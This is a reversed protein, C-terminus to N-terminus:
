GFREVIQTSSSEVTAASLDAGIGPVFPLPVPVQVHVTVLSGPALCTESCSISMTMSAPDLGFDNMAVAAAQRARAEGLGPSQAAVYVKAAQDAAGVVAFSGGQLQGATIVLYIVPVLLLLGLLIFELIASGAESDDTSAGANTALMGERGMGQAGMGEPSEWPRGGRTLRVRVSTRQIVTLRTLASLGPWAPRDSFQHM